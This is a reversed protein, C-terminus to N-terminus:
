GAMSSKAMSTIIPRPGLARLVSDNFVVKEIEELLIGRDIREDGSLENADFAALRRAHDELLRLRAHRGEESLDPWRDDVVHYGASTGWTPLATFLDVLLAVVASEFANRPEPLGDSRLRPRGM